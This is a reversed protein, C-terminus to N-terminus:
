IEEWKFNEVVSEYERDLQDMISLKRTQPDRHFSVNLILENPLELETNSLRQDWCLEFVRVMM